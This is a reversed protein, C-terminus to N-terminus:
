TSTSRTKNVALSAIYPSKIEGLKVGLASLQIHADDPQTALDPVTLIVDWDFAGDAAATNTSLGGCLLAAALFSVTLMRRNM